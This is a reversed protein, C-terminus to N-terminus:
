LIAPFITFPTVRPHWRLLPAPNQNQPYSVEASTLNRTLRTCSHVGDISRSAQAINAAKNQGEAIFISTM